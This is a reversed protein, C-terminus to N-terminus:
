EKLRQLQFGATESWQCSARQEVNEEISQGPMVNFLQCHIAFVPYKEDNFIEEDGFYIKTKSVDYKEVTGYDLIHVKVYNASWDLVEGRFLSYDDVQTEEAKFRINKKRPPILVKDGAELCKQPDM